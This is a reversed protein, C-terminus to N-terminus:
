CGLPTVADHVCLVKAAPTLAEVQWELQSCHTCLIGMTSADADSKLRRWLTMATEYARAQWLQTQYTWVQFLRRQDSSAAGETVNAAPVQARALTVEKKLDCGSM